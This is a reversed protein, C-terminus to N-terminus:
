IEGILKHPGRGSIWRALNAATGSIPIARLKDGLVIARARDTAQLRYSRFHKWSGAAEALLADVLEPPFDDFTAGNHLDFSSLWITRSRIFATERMTIRRGSSLGYSMDWGPGDLDRWEVNLHIESHAFLHRLAGIPLTVALTVDDEISTFPDSSPASMRLRAWEVYQALARAEYSVEAVTRRREYGLGGKAESLDADSLENLKRAFFATGLRAWGLERAPATPDDYRAGSGQRIRLADRAEDLSTV